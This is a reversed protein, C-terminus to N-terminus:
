VCGAHVLTKAHIWQFEHPPKWSQWEAQGDEQIVLCTAEVQSAIWAAPQFLFSVILLGFTRLQKIYFKVKFYPARTRPFLFSIFCEYKAAVQYYFFFNLNLTLLISVIVHVRILSSGLLIRKELSAAYFKKVM